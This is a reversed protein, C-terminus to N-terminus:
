LMRLVQSASLQSGFVEPKRLTRLEKIKQELVKRDEPDTCRTKQLSCCAAKMAAKPPRKKEPPPQSQEVSFRRVSELFREELFGFVSCLDSRLEAGKAETGARYLSEACIVM